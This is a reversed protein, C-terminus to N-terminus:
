FRNSERNNSFKELKEAFMYINTTKWFSTLFNILCGLTAISIYFCEAYEIITKAKFLFSCSMSVFLVTLILLISVNRPNFPFTQRSQSPYVGMYEYFKRVSLFLKMKNKECLPNVICFYIKFQLLEINYRSIKYSQRAINSM